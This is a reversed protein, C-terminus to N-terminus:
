LEYFHLTAARSNGITIKGDSIDKLLRVCELYHREKLEEYQKRSFLHYGAMDVSLRKVIAPVTTLPLGVSKGIYGDIEADARAIADFV